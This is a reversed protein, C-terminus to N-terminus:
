CPGGDFDHGETGRDENATKSSLMYAAQMKVHLACDCFGDSVNVQRLAKRRTRARNQAIAAWKGACRFQSKHRGALAKAELLMSVSVALSVDHEALM